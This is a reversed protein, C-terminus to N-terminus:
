SCHCDTHWVVWQHVQAALYQQRALEYRGLNVNVWALLHLDLAYAQRAGHEQHIAAAQEFLAASEPFQGVYVLTGAMSSLGDAAGVRDGLENCM